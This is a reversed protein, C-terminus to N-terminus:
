SVDPVDRRVEYSAEPGVETSIEDADAIGFDAFNPCEAANQDFDRSADLNRM